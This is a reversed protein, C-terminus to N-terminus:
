SGGIKRELFEHGGGTYKPGGKWLFHYGGLQQNLHMRNRICLTDYYFFIFYNYPTICHLPFYTGKIFNIHALRLMPFNNLALWISWKTITERQHADKDVLM